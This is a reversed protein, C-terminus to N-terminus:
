SSAGTKAIIQDWVARLQTTAVSGETPVRVTYREEANPKSERPRVSVHALALASSALVFVAVIGPRRM